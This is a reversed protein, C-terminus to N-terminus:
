WFSSSLLHLVQACSLASTFQPFISAWHHIVPELCCFTDLTFVLLLELVVSNITKQKEKQLSPKNSVTRCQRCTNVAELSEVATQFICVSRWEITPLPNWTVLKLFIHPGIEVELPLSHSFFLICHPEASAVKGLKNVTILVDAFATPRHCVNVSCMGFILDTWTGNM